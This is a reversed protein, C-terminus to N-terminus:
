PDAYQRSKVNVTCDSGGARGRKHTSAAGGSDLEGSREQQHLFFAGRGPIVVTWDTDWVVDSEIMNAGAPFVELETAFGIVEGAANRVKMLVALSNQIKEESFLAIGPPGAALLMKGSHTVAVGHNPIDIFFSEARSEARIFGLLVAACAIIRARSM